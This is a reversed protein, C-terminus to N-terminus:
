RRGTCDVVASGLPSNRLGPRSLRLRAQAKYVRRGGLCRIRPVQDLNALLEIQCRDQGPIYAELSHDGRSASLGPNADTTEHGYATIHRQEYLYMLVEQSCGPYHASGNEDENQM